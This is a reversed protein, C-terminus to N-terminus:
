LCGADTPHAAEDWAALARQIGASANGDGIRSAKAFLEPSLSVSSVRKNGRNKTVIKYPKGTAEYVTVFRDKIKATENEVTYTRVCLAGILRHMVPGWRGKGLEANLEEKTRPTELFSLIKKTFNGYM